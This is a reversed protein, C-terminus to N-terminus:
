GALRAWLALNDGALANFAEATADADDDHAADPFGELATFWDDNWPGRLVLVNGAEAQASFPSFRLVKDGSIPRVHVNFGALLRVLHEAQAKGAQAPDQPLAIETEFGDQQATNLLLREVESPRMRGRTHHAVLFRGDMTRGIKCGATWDPDNTETKPTAALDWGRCFYTGAPVADIVQCWGRQFLLGAAARIKWNGGLLREREVSPLAMLNAMYGPDAKMLARNDTLKAPIFTLSKPPIPAMVGDENLAKYEALDQPQDAWIINDGIRVFWRLVGAREPIPYGTEQNIWWAILEAVWSDADPNCTARIYPRVGCMSRNRSVMYWFQKQTFHTLEDFNILPIQSGQWNLVTKDHELHSFSVANGGPFKWYLEHEKPQANLLPYLQLSEDWLGGENTIQPTTRRFFVAGFGPVSVHRLPELLLGYTKGGGAGGGYIVIDACSSLFQTQPGPQPGIIVKHPGGEIEGM